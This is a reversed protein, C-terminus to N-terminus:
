KIQDAVAYGHAWGNGMLVLTANDTQNKKLKEKIVPFSKEIDGDIAWPQVKDPSYTFKVKSVTYGKVPTPSTFNEIKDVKATAIHIRYNDHIVDPKRVLEKGKESFDYKIVKYKIVIPPNITYHTDKREVIRETGKLLGASELDQCRAKLNTPRNRPPRKIVPMMGHSRLLRNIEEDTTIQEANVEIPMQKAIDITIGEKQLYDNIAKTFNKESAEKPSSGSCATCVSVIMILLIAMLRKM